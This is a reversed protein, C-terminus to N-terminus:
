SVGIPAVLFGQVKDAGAVSCSAYTKIQAKPGMRGVTRHLVRNTHLRWEAATTM